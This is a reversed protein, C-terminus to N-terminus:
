APRVFEAYREKLGGRSRVIWREAFRYASAYARQALASWECLAAIGRLVRARVAQGYDATLADAADRAFEYRGQALANAGRRFLMRQADEHLAVLAQAKFADDLEQNSELNRFMKKWGPWFSSFPETASYSASNLTFAAAPVKYLLYPFRMAIRLIFDLDSPGLAERDPLGVLELLERRFMIGTWIPCMGHLLPMLGEPPKFLGERVWGAGRANWIDGREDVNLTLGAWFMADPHRCLDDIARKYFGPLLYDDDSLVSFFPTDISNFGFEFNATAGLNHDHRHYQLRPDGAALSAVVTSTDDGSANDFICVKLPVGQQELASLIARKLLRPRQFTPIMTTVLPSSNNSGRDM